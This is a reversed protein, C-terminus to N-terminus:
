QHMMEWCMCILIYFPSLVVTCVVSYRVLLYGGWDNQIFTIKNAYIDISSKALGSLLYESLLTYGTLRVQANAECLHIPTVAKLYCTANDDYFDLKVAKLYCTENDDYFNMKM